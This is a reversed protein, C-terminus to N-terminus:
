KDVLSLYYLGTILILKLLYSLSLLTLLYTCAVEIQKVSTILIINTFPYTSFTRVMISVFPNPTKSKGKFIILSMNIHKLVLKLYIVWRINTKFADHPILVIQFKPFFNISSIVTLSITKKYYDSKGM